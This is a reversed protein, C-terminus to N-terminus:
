QLSNFAEELVQIAKEARAHIFKLEDPEVRLASDSAVLSELYNGIIRRAEDHNMKLRAYSEALWISNGFSSVVGDINLRIGEHDHSIVATKM